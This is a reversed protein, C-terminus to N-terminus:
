HRPTIMTVEQTENNTVSVMAWLLLPPDIVAAQAYTVEIRVREQGSARVADTIPDLQAEAPTLAVPDPTKGTPNVVRSEIPTTGAPAYVNVRMPLPSEGSLYIRLTNRYRADVPVDLLVILSRFEEVPVVPIEAGFGLASRTTDRVRLSMTTRLDFDRPIYVFAGETGPYPVPNVHTIGHAEVYPAPCPSVIPPCSSWLPYLVADNANHITFESIWFSGQAGPTPGYVSTIPVLYRHYDAPQAGALGAFALLAFAAVVSRALM